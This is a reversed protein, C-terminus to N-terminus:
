RLSRYSDHTALADEIDARLELDVVRPLLSRILARAKSSKLWVAIGILAGSVGPDSSVLLEELHPAVVALPAGHMCMAHVLEARQPPGASALVAGLRRDRPSLGPEGGLLSIAAQVASAGGRATSAMASELSKRVPALGLERRWARAAVAFIPSAPRALAALVWAEDLVGADRLRRACEVAADVAESEREAVELVRAAIVRAAPAGRDLAMWAAYRLRTWDRGALALAMEASLRADIARDPWSIVLGRAESAGIEDELSLALIRELLDPPAGLQALVRLADDVRGADDSSVQRAALARVPDAHERAIVGREVLDGLRRMWGFSEPEPFRKAIACVGRVGIAGFREIVRPALAEERPTISSPAPEAPESDDAVLQLLLVLAEPDPAEALLARAMARRAELVRGQMVALRAAFRESPPRDLLEVGLASEAGVPCASDFRRLWQRRAGDRVLLSPDSAALRLRPLALTAPLRELAALARVREHSRACKLWHDVMAAATEPFAAALAETAWGADLWGADHEADILDLLAEEAEAPQVSGLAAIVGDAMMREDEGLQEQVGPDEGCALIDPPPNAVLDRLVLVLDDPTVACSAGTALAHLAHSRVAFDPQRLARRLALVTTARRDLLALLDVAVARSAETPGEDVVDALRAVLADVDVLDASWAGDELLAGATARDGARAIEVLLDVMEPHVLPMAAAVYSARERQRRTMRAAHRVVLRLLRVAEAPHADMAELAIGIRDARVLLRKTARASEEDEAIAWAEAVGLSLARCAARMRERSRELQTDSGPATLRPHDIRLAHEDDAEMARLLEAIRDGDGPRVFRWAFHKARTPDIQDRPDHRQM